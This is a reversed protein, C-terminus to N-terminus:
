AVETEAARFQKRIADATDVGVIDAGDVAVAGNADTAHCRFARPAGGRGAVLRAAPRPRARALGHPEGPAHRRALQPHASGTFIQLRGDM